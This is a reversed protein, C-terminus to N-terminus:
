LYLLATIVHDHCCHMVGQFLGPAWCVCLHKWLGPNLHREGPHVPVGWIREKELFRNSQQYRQDGKRLASGDCAGCLLAATACLKSNDLVRGAACM